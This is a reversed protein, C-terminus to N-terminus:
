YYERRLLFFRERLKKTDRVYSTKKFFPPGKWLLQNILDRYLHLDLGMQFRNSLWSRGKRKLQDNDWVQEM